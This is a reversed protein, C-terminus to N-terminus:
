CECHSDDLSCTKSISLGDEEQGNVGYKGYRGCLVMMNCHMGKYLIYCLIYLSRGIYQIPEDKLTSIYIGLRRGSSVLVSILMYM